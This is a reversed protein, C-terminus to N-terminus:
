AACFRSGGQGGHAAGTESAENRARGVRRLVGTMVRRVGRDGGGRGDGPRVGSRALDRHGLRLEPVERRVPPRVGRRLLAAVAPALDHQPEVALDLSPLVVTQAVQVGAADLDETRRCRLRRGVADLPRDLLVDRAVAGGQAGCLGDLHEDAVDDVVGVGADDVDLHGQGEVRGFLSCGSHVRGGGVGGVADEGEGVPSDEGGRAVAFADDGLHVGGARAAAALLVPIQCHGAGGRVGALGVVAGIALHLDLDVALERADSRREGGHPRAAPGIGEEPVDDRAGAGEVDLRDFVVQRGEGTRRLSPRGCRTSTETTPRGSPRGPQLVGTLTRTQCSSWRSRTM